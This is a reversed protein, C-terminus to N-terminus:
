IKRGFCDRLECVTQEIRYATRINSKEAFNSALKQLNNIIAINYAIHLDKTMDNKETSELIESNPKEFEELADEFDEEEWSNEDTKIPKFAEEPPGNLVDDAYKELEKMIESNHWAVKDEISFDM